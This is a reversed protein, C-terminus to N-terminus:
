AGLGGGSSGVKCSSGGITMSPIGVGTSFIVCTILHKLDKM